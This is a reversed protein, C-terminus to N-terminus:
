SILPQCSLGERELREIVTAQHREDTCQVIVRYTLVGMGETSLQKRPKAAGGRMLADIDPLAFGTLTVDFEALRLDAFIDALATDDWGAHEGLKNDAILLALEQAESLPHDKSRQRVPVTALRLLLAAETRAHGALIRGDHTILVPNTFGWERISGCLEELQDDSHTRPNRPHALLEHPAREDNTWLNM